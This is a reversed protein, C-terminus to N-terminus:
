PTTVNAIRSTPSPRTCTPCQTPERRRVWRGARDAAYRHLIAPHGGSDGDVDSRQAEPVDDRDSAAAGWHGQAGLGERGDVPRAGDDLLEGRARRRGVPDGGAEAGEGGAVDGGLHARLQLPRQHARVGGAGARRDLALDHAAQHQEPERGEGGAVGADAALGGLQEGPQERGADRRYHRLVAREAAGAVEGRERVARERQHALARHVVGVARQPGGGLREGGGAEGRDLQDRLLAEREDIAGVAHEPHQHERDGVQPHQQAGGVDGRRHRHLALEGGVPHERGLQLREPRM